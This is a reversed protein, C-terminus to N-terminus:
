SSIQFKKKMQQKYKKKRNFNVQTNDYVEFSTNIQRNIRKILEDQQLLISRTDYFRGVRTKAEFVSQDFDLTCAIIRTLNWTDMLWCIVTCVFCTDPKLLYRFKEQTPRRWTESVHETAISSVRTQLFMQTPHVLIAKLTEWGKDTLLSRSLINSRLIKLVNWLLHTIIISM